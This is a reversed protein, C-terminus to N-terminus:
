ICFPHTPYNLFDNLDKLSLAGGISCKLQALSRVSLFFFRRNLTDIENCNEPSYLLRCIMLRQAVDESHRSIFVPLKIWIKGRFQDSKRGCIIHIIQTWNEISIVSLQPYCRKIICKQPWQRAVLAVSCESWCRSQTEGSVQFSNFIKLINQRSNTPDNDRYNQCFVSYFAVLETKYHFHLVM